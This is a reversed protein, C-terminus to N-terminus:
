KAAMNRGWRFSPGVSYRFTWRGNALIDNFPHNYVVDMQARIGLHQNISYDGGGGVGYFGTWDLKFGAPALQGVILTQFADAPHPVARERLAGLSPRLFLTLKSFHRYALQPGFAFTQTAADTPVALHYNAPLLGGAIFQAQAANVQAQLAAPLLNTTLLQSGTAESYDGGISFWRRPNIGVQVHLGNHEDLGLMPSDIVAFGAYADYRDIYDQQAKASTGPFSLCAAGTACALLRTFVAKM